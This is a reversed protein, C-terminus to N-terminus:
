NTSGPGLFASEISQVTQGHSRIRVRVHTSPGTLRSRAIRLLFRGDLVSYPAVPTLSGLPTVTAGAPELVEIAFDASHGTRNLAQLTYFNAIDGGPLAVYLTGAQRLVLVDLDPRASLLVALVAVLLLWV